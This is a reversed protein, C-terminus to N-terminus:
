THWVETVKIPLSESQEMDKLIILNWNSISGISGIMEPLSTSCDALWEM